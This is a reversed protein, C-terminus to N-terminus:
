GILELKFTDKMINIYTEKTQSGMAMQPKDDIPIFLISPISRIQFVQALESQAEIDVKFFDVNELEVDLEELIPTITKCPACWDAYFDIVTPKNGIFKWEKNDSYDFVKEKFSEITLNEM